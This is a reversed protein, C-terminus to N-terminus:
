RLDPAILGALQQLLASMAAVQAQDGAGVPGVLHARRRIAQAPGRTADITWSADLTLTGDPAPEFRSVTLDLRRFDPQLPSTTVLDAQPLLAQLDAALAQRIGVSLRDGWRGNPSAVLEDPAVRRLLGSGDLHDPLLVPRVEIVDSPLPELLPSGALGSSSLVYVHLRPAACSALGVALLGVLLHRRM